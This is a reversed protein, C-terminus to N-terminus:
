NNNKAKWKRMKEWYEPIIQPRPPEAVPKGNTGNWFNTAIPNLRVPTGDRRNAEVQEQTALGQVIIIGRTHGGEGDARAKKLSGDPTALYWDVKSYEKSNDNMTEVDAKKDGRGTNESFDNPNTGGDTHNHIVGELTAGKPIVQNWEVSQNGNDDTKGTTARNYSYYTKGNSKFSYISSGFEINNKMGTASYEVSWALAADDKTLYKEGVGIPAMGDPDIFRVPNDFAYNYPSWRRMKEALPDIVWWRGVQPDYHRAGYDYTELGSGNSFEKCQLEKGNYKLKNELRGFARSSIGNMVLGFPYYQTEETLAGTYHNVVLNDFFVPQGPAGGTVANSVYVFLYGSKVVPLGTTALTQLRQDDYYGVRIFGSGSPVFKFQEDFLIWNLYAQPPMSTNPEDAPHSNLFDTIGGLMPSNNGQLELPTAKGGSLGAAGNTLSGVLATMLAIPTMTRSTPAYVKYPVWAKVGLDVKDGGPAKMAVKPM